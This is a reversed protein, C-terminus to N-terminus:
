RVTAEFTITGTGNAELEGDLVFTLVSSGEGNPDITVTGPHKEDISASGEVYQLRPTLNDVIRVDSLPLEGTNRFRITFRVVDGTQATQVDALKVLQLVGGERQDEVGVTQQTKQVDRIASPSATAAFIQPFSQRTWAEANRAQQALVSADKRLFTHAASADGSQRGKDAKQSQVPRERNLSQAPPLSAMM